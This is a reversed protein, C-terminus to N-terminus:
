WAPRDGDTFPVWKRELLIRWLIAKQYAIPQNWWAAVHWFAPLGSTVTAVVKAIYMTHVTRPSGFGNDAWNPALIRMREMLAKRLFTDPDVDPSTPKTVGM